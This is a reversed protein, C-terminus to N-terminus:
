PCTRRPARKKKMAKFKGRFAKQIKTAAAHRRGAPGVDPHRQEPQLVSPVTSSQEVVSM